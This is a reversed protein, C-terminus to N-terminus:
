WDNRELRWSGRIGGVAHQGEEEEQAKDVELEVLLAVAALLVRGVM